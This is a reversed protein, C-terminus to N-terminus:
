PLSSSSLAEAELSFISSIRSSSPCDLRVADVFWANELHNLQSFCCKRSGDFAICLAAIMLACCISKIICSMICVISRKFVHSTGKRGSGKSSTWAMAKQGEQGSEVVIKAAPLICCSSLAYRLAYRSGRADDGDINDSAKKHTCAQNVAIAVHTSAFSTRCSVSQEYDWPAM